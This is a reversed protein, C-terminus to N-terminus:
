REKLKNKLGAIKSGGTDKQIEPYDPTAIIATNFKYKTKPMNLIPDPLSDDLAWVTYAKCM